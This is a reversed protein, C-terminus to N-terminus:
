TEIEIEDIEAMLRDTEMLAVIIKQYHQIEEFSLERDRRDKLWKEAPQYGGIYFNWAKEPVMGFYQENNIQIRGLREESYRHDEPTHAPENDEEENLIFGPKTKTLRKTIENSGEVPYTTIFDNVIPHELLHIKRLEGGLEVLQWFTEADTPYPVRPFDIKLFEKYKERYAPSHLVAYIYDLLDIPAFTGKTDEKEPNFTLDLDNAIQQVIDADLNPNRQSKGDLTQQGNTEPYIYLPFTLGAGYQGASGTFNVDCLTDTVFFGFKGTIAQRPLLLAFNSLSMHKMAKSAPRSIIEPDYYIYRNDFPRYKYPKIHKHSYDCVKIKDTLKYSSTDKM